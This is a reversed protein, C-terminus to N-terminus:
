SNVTGYLDHWSSPSFKPQNGSVTNLATLASPARDGASSLTRSPLNMCVICPHFRLEMLFSGPTRLCCRLAADGAAGPEELRGTGMWPLAQPYWQMQTRCCIDLIGWFKLFLLNLLIWVMWLVNKMQGFIQLKFVRRDRTTPTSLMLM